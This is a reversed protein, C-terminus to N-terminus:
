EAGQVLEEVTPLETFFAQMIPPIDQSALGAADWAEPAVTVLAPDSTIGCRTCILDAIATAAALKAHDPDQALAINHHARISAVLPDPLKWKLGISAGMEAHDIGIITQEAQYAPVNDAQVVNRVQQMEAAMYKEFLVKGIDHLLGYVFAEDPSEIPLGGTRNLAIARMAAGCAVSHRFFNDMGDKMIDLVTATFALNKIVKTGLLVVAHEITTVKQRLGYYATNVLRLTKIALPPDSSIAKAVESLPCAPDDVLQMIQAVTGPLSPLTVVEDLIQDIDYTKAM